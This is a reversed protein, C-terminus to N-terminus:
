EEIIKFHAIDTMAGIRESPPKFVAEVRLGVRLRQLDTEELFHPFRNDCGNLQIIAYGYPVPREVGTFPDIFPFNIVSFTRLTGQPGVEVFERMEAFCNGCVVRPPVLVAGCDTCRSALIKGEDRLAILFRSVHRGASYNYPLHTAIKIYLLKEKEEKTM